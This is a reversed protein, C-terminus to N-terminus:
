EIEGESRLENLHSDYLADAEPVNKEYWRDDGAKSGGLLLIAVSWFILRQRKATQPDACVTGPACVQPVLYLKRFGLGLFLLTLGIFLPRYPEFATLNGVWAGGIGLALLVLPVVCCVSAGIAAPVGAVLSGKANLAAM